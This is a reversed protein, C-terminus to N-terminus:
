NTLICSAIIMDDCVPGDMYMYGTYMSSYRESFILTVMVSTVSAVLTTTPTRTPRISHCVYPRVLQYKNLKM